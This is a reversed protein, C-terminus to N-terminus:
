RDRYRDRDRRRDKGGDTGYLLIGMIPIALFWLWTGTRFFLLLAVFPTLAMVTERVRNPLSAGLLGTSVAPRVDPAPPAGFVPASSGTPVPAAGIPPVVGAPMGAPRPMPLDSFLPGIEGWTRARSAVVQREEFETPDLRGAERHAILAEVAAGREDDGIRVAAALEDM